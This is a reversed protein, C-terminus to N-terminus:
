ATARARKRTDDYENPLSGCGRSIKWMARETATQDRRWSRGRGIMHATQTPRMLLEDDDTHRGVDAADVQPSDNGRVHVQPQRGALASGRGHQHANFRSERNGNREDGEREGRQPDPPAARALRERKEARKM